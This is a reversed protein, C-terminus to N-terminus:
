RKRGGGNAARKKPGTEERLQQETLAVTGPYHMPPVHGGNKMPHRKGMWWDWLVPEPAPGVNRVLWSEPVGYYAALPSHVRYDSPPEDRDFWERVTPQARGVQEALTTQSPAEGTLGYFLWGAYALREAFSGEDTSV